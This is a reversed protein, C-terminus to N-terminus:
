TLRAGGGKVSIRDLTTLNHKRLTEPAETIKPDTQTTKTQKRSKMYVSEPLGIALALGCPVKASSEVMEPPWSPPDGEQIWDALRPSPNVHKGPTREKFRQFNICKQKRLFSVYIYRRADSQFTTNNLQVRFWPLHLNEKSSDLHGLCRFKM